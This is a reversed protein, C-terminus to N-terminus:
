KERGNEKWIQGNLGGWEGEFQKKKTVTHMHVNTYVCMNWFILQQSWIINSTHITKPSVMQWQVLVVQFPGSM